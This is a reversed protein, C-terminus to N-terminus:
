DRMILDAIPGQVQGATASSVLVVTMLGVDALRGFSARRM